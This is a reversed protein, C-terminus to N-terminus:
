VDDDSEAEKKHSRHKKTCTKTEIVPKDPLDDEVESSSTDEGDLMAKNEESLNRCHIGYLLIWINYLIFFVVYTWSSASDFTRYNVVKLFELITTIVGMVAAAYGCIRWRGGIVADEKDYVCAMYIGIALITDRLFTVWTFCNEFMMYCMEMCIYPNVRQQPDPRFTRSVIGGAQVHTFLRIRVSRLGSSFASKMCELVLGGVLCTRM